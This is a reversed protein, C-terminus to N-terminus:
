LQDLIKGTSPETHIRNLNLNIVSFLNYYFLNYTNSFLIIQIKVVEVIDTTNKYVFM